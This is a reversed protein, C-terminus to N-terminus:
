RKVSRAYVTILVQTGSFSVDDTDMIHLVEANGSSDKLVLQLNPNGLDAPTLASPSFIFKYDDATLEKGTNTSLQQVTDHGGSLKMRGIQFYVPQPSFSTDVFTATTRGILDNGTRTIIRKFVTREFPTFKRLTANLKNIIAQPSPM